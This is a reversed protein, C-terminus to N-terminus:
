RGSGELLCKRLSERLREKTDEPIAERPTRKLVDVTRKLSEVCRRCEPCTELHKQIEECLPEELEGDLFESIREFHKKCGEHM